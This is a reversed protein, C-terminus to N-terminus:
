VTLNFIVDENIVKFEYGKSKAYQIAANWKFTNIAFAIANSKYSKTIRGSKPISPPESQSKPKVEVLFKKIAGDNQKIECYFDVFYRRIRNENPLQYPIVHRESSWAIVNVTLDFFKMVRLEWSSRYIPVNNGKYKEKHEINYFGQTFNGYSM